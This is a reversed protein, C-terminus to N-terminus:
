PEPQHPLDLPADESEAEVELDTVFEHRALWQQHLAPNQKAVQKENQQWIEGIPKADLEAASKEARARQRQAQKVTKQKERLASLEEPAMEARNKKTPM